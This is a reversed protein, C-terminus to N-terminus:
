ATVMGTYKVVLAGLASKQLGRLHFITSFNQSGTLSSASLPQCAMSTYSAYCSIDNTHLDSPCVQLRVRISHGGMFFRIACRELRSRAAAQKHPSVALNAGQVRNFSPPM